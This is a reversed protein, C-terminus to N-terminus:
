WNPAFLLLAAILSGAAKYTWSIPKPIREDNAAIYYTYYFGPSEASVLLDFIAQSVGPHTVHRKSKLWVHLMGTEPNYAASKVLRSKLAIRDM